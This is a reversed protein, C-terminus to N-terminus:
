EEDSRYASVTSGLQQTSSDITNTPKRGQIAASAQRVNLVQPKAYSM